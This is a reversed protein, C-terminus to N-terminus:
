AEAADARSVRKSKRVFDRLLPGGPRPPRARRARVERLKTNDEVLADYKAQPEAHSAELEARASEHATLAAGHSHELETRTRAAAAVDTAEHRRVPGAIGRAQPSHRYRRRVRRPVERQNLRDLLPRSTRVLSARTRSHRVRRSRWRHQLQVHHIARRSRQRTSPRHGPPLRDIGCKLEVADLTGDGDRDLTGM